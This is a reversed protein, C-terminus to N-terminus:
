QGCNYCQFNTGNSRNDTNSSSSQARDNQTAHSQNTLYQNGYEPPYPQHNPPYYPNYQQDIQENQTQRLEILKQINELQEVKALFESPTTYTEKIADQYLSVLSTWPPAVAVAGSGRRWRWPPLPAAATPKKFYGHRHPAAATPRQFLWPPLPAAAPLIKQFFICFCRFRFV